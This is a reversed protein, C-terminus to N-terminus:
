RRGRLFRALGAGNESACRVIMPLGYNVCAGTGTSVLELVDLSLAGRDSGSLRGSYILNQGILNNLGDVAADIPGGVKHDQEHGSLFDAVDDASLTSCIYYILRCTEVNGVMSALIASFYVHRFANATNPDIFGGTMLAEAKALADLSASYVLMCAKPGHTLCWACENPGVGRGGGLAEPTCTRPVQPPLHPIPPPGCIFGNVTWVCAAQPDFCTEAPDFNTEGQDPCTDEGSPGPDSPPPGCVIEWGGDHCEPSCLFGLGCSPDTPNDCVGPIAM